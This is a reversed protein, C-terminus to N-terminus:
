AVTSRETTPAEEFKGLLKLKRVASPGCIHVPEYAKRQNILGVIPRPQGELLLCRLFYLPAAVVPVSLGLWSSTESAAVQRPFSDSAKVAKLSALPLPPRESPIMVDAIPCNAMACEAHKKKRAFTRM